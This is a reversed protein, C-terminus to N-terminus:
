ATCLITDLRDKPEPGSNYRPSIAAAQHFTLLFSNMETVVQAENSLYVYHAGGKHRLPHM